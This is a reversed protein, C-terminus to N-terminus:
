GGTAEKNWRDGLAVLADYQEDTVPKADAVSHAKAYGAICATFEWLTMRQLQQPTFGLV